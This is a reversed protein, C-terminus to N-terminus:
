NLSPVYEPIDGDRHVKNEPYHCDSKAANDSVDGCEHYAVQSWECHTSLKVYAQDLIETPNEYEPYTFTVAYYRDAKPRIQPIPDDPTKNTILDQTQTSVSEHLETMLWEHFEAAGETSYCLTIKHVSM